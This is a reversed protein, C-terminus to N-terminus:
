TKNFHIEAYIRELLFFILYNLFIKYYNICMLLIYKYYLYFFKSFM